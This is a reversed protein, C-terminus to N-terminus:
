AEDGPRLQRCALERRKREGKGLAAKGRKMVAVTGTRAGFRREEIEDAGTSGAIGAPIEESGFKMMVNGSQWAM